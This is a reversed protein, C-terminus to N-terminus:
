IPMASLGDIWDAGHKPRWDFILVTSSGDIWDAGHKLRSDYLLRLFRVIFEELTPQAFWPVDVVRSSWDARLKLRM